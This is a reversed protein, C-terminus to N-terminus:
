RTTTARHPPGEYHDRVAHFAEDMWDEDTLRRDGYLLKLEAQRFVREDEEIDDFEIALLQNLLEPANLETAMAMDQLAAPRHRDRFIGSASRNCRM